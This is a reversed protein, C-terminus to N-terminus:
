KKVKNWLNVAGTKIKAPLAKLTAMNLYKKVCKLKSAGLIAGIAVIGGFLWKKWSPNNVGTSNSKFEDAKPQQKMSPLTDSIYDLDPCGYYRPQTGRIFAPADFPIIGAAAAADLDNVWSM